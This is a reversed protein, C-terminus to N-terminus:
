LYGQRGAVGVDGGPLGALWLASSRQEGPHSCREGQSCNLDVAGAERLRDIVLGWLHDGLGM